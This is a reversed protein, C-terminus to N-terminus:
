CSIELIYHDTHMGCFSLRNSARSLPVKNLFFLDYVPQLRGIFLDALFLLACMQIALFRGNLKGTKRYNQIALCFRPCDPIAPLALFNSAESSKHLISVMRKHNCNHSSIRHLLRAPIKRHRRKDSRSGPYVTNEVYSGCCQANSIFTFVLSVTLVLSVVFTGITM